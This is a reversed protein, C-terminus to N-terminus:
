QMIILDKIFTQGFFFLGFCVKPVEMIIVQYKGMRGAFRDVEAELTATEEKYKELQSHTQRLEMQTKDHKDYLKELEVQLRAVEEQSKDLGGQAKQHQLEARELDYAYKDCDAQIDVNFNLCPFVLLPQGM